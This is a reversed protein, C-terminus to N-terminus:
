ENDETQSGGGTGGTGEAEGDGEEGNDLQSTPLIRPKFAASNQRAYSSTAEISKM